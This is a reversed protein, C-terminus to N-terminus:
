LSPAKNREYIQYIEKENFDECPVEISNKFHYNEKLFIAFWNILPMLDEKTIEENNRLFVERNIVFLRPVNKTLDEILMKTYPAFYRKYHFFDPVVTSAPMRKIYLYISPEINRYKSFYFIYLRDKYDPLLSSLIDAFLLINSRYYGNNGNPLVPDNLSQPQFFVSTKIIRKAYNFYIPFVIWIRHLFFLSILVFIFVKLYHHNIIKRFSFLDNLGLAIFIAISPLVLIFYYCGYAGPAIVACINGIGWISLLPIFSLELNDKKMLINRVLGCLLFLIYVAYLISNSNGRGFMFTALLILFSQPSKLFDKSYSGVWASKEWFTVPNMFYFIIVNFFLFSLIFGLFFILFRDKIKNFSNRSVILLYIAWCFVAIILVSGSLKSIMSCSALVGALLSLSFPKEKELSILLFYISCLSFLVCLNEAELAMASELELKTGWGGIPTMQILIWFLVALGSYINSSIIKKLVLYMVIGILMVVFTQIFHVAIISWTGFSFLKLITAYLLVNLPGGFTRLINETLLYQSYIFYFGENGSACLVSFNFPLKFIFYLILSFILIVLGIVQDNKKLSSDKIQAM